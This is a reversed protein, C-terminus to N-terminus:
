KKLQVWKTKFTYALVTARQKALDALPGSYLKDVASVWSSLWTDFMSPQIPLHMHKEFVNTKYGTEDLLVFAWFSVIKPIHTEFNIGEFAPKMEDIKLLESYFSRILIEIDSKCAIDNM